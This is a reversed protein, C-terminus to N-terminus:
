KAQFGEDKIIYNTTEDTQAQNSGNTHYNLHGMIWLSGFVLIVVILLTFDLALLNWRPESEHGMHLFFILQVVVQAVALAVIAYVLTWGTFVHNVTFLYAVMTLVVSLAFGLTYQQLKHKATLKSQNNM